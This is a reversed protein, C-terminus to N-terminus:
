HLQAGYKENLEGSLSGIDGAGLVLLIDEDDVVNELVKDIDSRQELFIPDLKSRMRIGRSIARSDAGALADEGAAYVEMLILVDVTSLVQCFEDFLDRTRTYRHPQFITIIRRDPWGLRVSELIASIECPHHAYDDVLLVTTDKIKINGLVDCRRGIGAFASLASVIASEDVELECALAFAALSNLVNHVGPMNLTVDQVQGKKRNSVKFHTRGGEHKIDTAQYDALEDLGYTVFPRTLQEVISRVGADETCVIALGYFPLRHLFELFNDALNRFEGGYTDLHDSDINTLVAIVPQLHLFSADSEDAEAVLFKGSGLRANSGSSNLLGGIVYTPDLGAEALVSAILSTTTTKGHTGAVAIGPRFRMLEALMEARRVIPIRKERAAELEPNNVDVASSVVVVDSGNIHAEDHHLSIDVGLKQLNQISQNLKIDSGSVEYGLNHLVEAIGSMGAGGVGVFHIHKVRGMVHRDFEPM